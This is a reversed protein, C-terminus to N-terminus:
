RSKTYLAKRIAAAMKEPPTGHRFHTLYRGDAGVLYTFTSHDVLYDDDEAGDKAGVRSYYVRYAKAAARVKAPAGTLAILRPHFNEAYLRMAAVTDRGPDLTIFIPQVKAAAGGLLDLAASLTALGTPCIDPCHTYGFFVLLQRGRFEDDSRERGFQDVLRFPGGILARGTTEAQRTIVAAPPEDEGFLAYLGLGLLAGAAAAAAFAIARPRGRGAM